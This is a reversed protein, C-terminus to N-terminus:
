IAGASSRSGARHPTEPASARIRASEEGCRDPRQRGRAETGTLTQVRRDAFRRCVFAPGGVPVTAMAAAPRRRQGPVLLLSFAVATALVITLPILSRDHPLYARYYEVHKEIGNM